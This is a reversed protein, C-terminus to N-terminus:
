LGFVLGGPMQTAMALNSLIIKVINIAIFVAIPSLDLGGMPPILKQFPACIPDVLQRILLLAPNYSGPAIWSAIIMIILAFFYINVILGIVGLSAWILINAIHFQGILGYLLLLCFMAAIQVLLALVISALDYGGFGPIIKRLPLLLPNTAKVIFQSIPNGYDARAIQLLFRLLVIMLYLGAITQILYSAIQLMAQM